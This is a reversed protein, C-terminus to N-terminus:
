GSTSFVASYKLDHPEWNDEVPIRLLEFASNSPNPNYGPIFTFAVKYGCERAIRCTDQTYMNKGGVPYALAEVSVKVHEEILKKSTMLEARQEEMSLHSLIEHTHGHSGIDMGAQQMEAAQEWTMFLNSNELPMECDCAVRIHRIKEALTFDTNNKIRSLVTRITHRINQSDITISQNNWPLRLTQNKTNKILWAVEDWWPVHDCNIYSTPLFFVGTTKEARLIPFANEYNGRYGDDFTIMAMPEQLPKGSAIIELLERITIIKLRANIAAIQKAFHIEDCSYINPDFPTDDPNGIRHYNFVYLGPSIKKWLYELIGTARLIDRKLSHRSM